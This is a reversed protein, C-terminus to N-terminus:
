KEIIESFMSVSIEDESLDMDNTHAEMIDNIKQQFKCFDVEAPKISDVMSTMQYIM